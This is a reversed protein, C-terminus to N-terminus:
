VISKIHFNNYDSGHINFDIHFYKSVLCGNQGSVVGDIKIVHIHEGLCFFLSTGTDSGGRKKIRQFEM